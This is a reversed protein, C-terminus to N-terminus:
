GVYVEPAQKGNTNIGRRVSSLRCDSIEKEIEFRHQRSSCRPTSMAVQITSSAIWLDLTSLDEDKLSRIRFQMQKRIRVNPAVWETLTMYEPRDRRLGLSPHFNLPWSLSEIRSPSSEVADYSL